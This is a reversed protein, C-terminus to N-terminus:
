TWPVALASGRRFAYFFSQNRLKLQTYSELSLLFLHRFTGFAFEPHHYFYHTLKILM